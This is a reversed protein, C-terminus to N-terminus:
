AVSQARERPGEYAKAREEEITEELGAQLPARPRQTPWLRVEVRRSPEAPWMTQSARVRM